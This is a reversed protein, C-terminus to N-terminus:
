RAAPSAPAQRGRRAAAFPNGGPVLRPEAGLRYLGNAMICFGTAAFWVMAGGVFGTLPSDVLKKLCEDRIDFQARGLAVDVLMADVNEIRLIGCMPMPDPPLKGTLFLCATKSLPNTPYDLPIGQWQVHAVAGAKTCAGLGNADHLIQLFRQFASRNTGTDPKGRDVPTKLPSVDNTMLNFAPGNLNKKDYTLEDRFAMYGAFVDKLALTRDDGMAKFLDEFLGPQAAMTTVVDLVEDWLTSAEPVKAEPHKDAIAKVQFGVGILRALEQPHDTMLTRLLVLVEETEPAALLQGVAYVLDLLPADEPHFARYAVKTSPPYSATATPLQDRTGSIVSVGALFGALGPERQPDVLPRLDQELEALATHAADLTVYAPKGALLARGFADRSATDQVDPVVFPSPIPAGNTVFRGLADVDALGDKDADVFPSPIAGGVPAVAALGRADRRVLWRPEGFGLSADEFLLAARTLELSTRPRSLLTRGSADVTISLPGPPPDATATRVEERAVTLLARLDAAGKGAVRARPVAYPDSDVSFTGLLSQGLDVLRPYALLPRKIGAAVSTSRYGERAALRALAVQAEPDGQVADMTRALAETLLPITRDKYLEVLRSLADALERPLSGQGTRGACDVPITTDPVAEDVAAILEARHKALAEVRAVRYARHQKQVDLPVPKGDLGVANPDLAVLKAQDVSDAFAGSPDPHCVAHFSEGTIDERLAQAGVRDCVLSYVERGITGRSTIHRSTDFDNCAVAVGGAM